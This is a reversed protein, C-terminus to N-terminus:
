TLWVLDIEECSPKPTIVYLAEFRREDVTRIQDPNTAGLVPPEEVLGRRDRVRRVLSSFRETRAHHIHM